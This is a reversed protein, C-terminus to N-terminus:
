LKESMAPRSTAINVTSVTKASPVTPLNAAIAVSSSTVSTVAIRIKASWVHPITVSKVASHIKVAVTTVPGSTACNASTPTKVRLVPRRGAGTVSSVASVVSIRRAFKATTSRKAPSAIHRKAACVCITAAIAVSNRAVSTTVSSHIKASVVYLPRVTTVTTSIMAPRASNKTASPVSPFIMADLAIANIALTGITRASSATKANTANQNTAFAAITSIIGSPFTMVIEVAFVELRPWKATQANSRNAILSGSNGLDRDM